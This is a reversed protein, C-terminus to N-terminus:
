KWSSPLYNNQISVEEISKKLFHKMHSLKWGGIIHDRRPLFENEKIVTGDSIHAGRVGSSCSSYGTKFVLDYAAKNFNNFGGYTYAFHPIDGCSATLVTKCQNLNDEFENLTLKAVDEHNMTHAGIEHGQKLLSDLDKWNLFEVPPMDIRTRCFEAAKEISDIGISNPNVFFCASAGYKNLIEAAKLNSKLGDDSSFSIYPKDINGSLVKKIADSHSLFTHQKSLLKLLLDFNVIEDDFIHHIYLFHVRPKEFVKDFDVSSEKLSILDLAINRAFSRIQAKKSKAWYNQLEELKTIYHM